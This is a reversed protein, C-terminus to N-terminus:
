FMYEIKVDGEDFSIKKILDLLIYRQKEIPYNRINKVEEYKGKLFEDNVENISNNKMSIKLKELQEIYMNLEVTYKDNMLKYQNDSVTGEMFKDLLTDMKRSLSEIDKEVKKLNKETETNSVKKRTKLDSTTADINLKSDIARQLNDIIFEEIESAGIHHSTCYRKGYKIYDMCYYNDKTKIHGKDDRRGRKFTMSSGCKGCKIISSLLSVGSKVGKRVGKANMMSQVKDFIERDIIPPHADKTIIWKDESNYDNGIYVDEDTKGIAEPNKYPRSNKSRKNYVIDGVYVRNKLMFGITYQSWRAKRPSPYVTNSENDGNLYNAISRMGFGDLYLDFIHKVIEANSYDIELKKTASNYSYGFPISNTQNWEGAQAKILQTHKIREGLKKSEMEAFMLYMTIRSTDLHGAGTRQELSDFAEEVTIVRINSRDLRKILGLGKETDRYLRSIGKMIVCDYKGKIADSILEKVEPRNNDDTGTATDTKIDVIELGLEEARKKCIKIQNELTEKQGLKSTSKRVYIATKM